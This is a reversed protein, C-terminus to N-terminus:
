LRSNLRLARNRISGLSRDIQKGINAASEGSRALKRLLDDKEPTWPADHRLSLKM